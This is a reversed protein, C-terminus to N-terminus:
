GNFSALPDRSSAETGTPSLDSGSSSSAYATNWSFPHAAVLEDTAIMAADLEAAYAVCRPCFALEAQVLRQERTIFSLKRKLKCASCLTELCIKCTARKKTALAVLASPPKKGCTGCRGSAHDGRGNSSSSSHTSDVSGSSSHVVVGRDQVVVSHRQGLLWAIKKMEACYMYKWSSVLAQAASKIVVSHMLGGAPNLVGRIYVDVTKQDARQRYIGSVSMNGRLVTDLEPTEPFQVSHILHYGVRDGNSLVDVGTSELYVFDRNKVLARVHLPRGKEIWKITVSRFPDSPQPPVLTALVASRVLEDEIYTTKIRMWDLTPCIYGFIADDLKGEITGCVMVTPLDATSNGLVPVDPLDVGGALLERERREAFVRVNERQTVPKWRREDVAYHADFAYREYQDMSRRVFARALGELQTADEEKLRLPPFPHAAASAKASSSM